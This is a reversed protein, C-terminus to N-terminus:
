SGSIKFDKLDITAKRDQLKASWEKNDFEFRMELIKNLFENEEVFACFGIIRFWSARYLRMDGAAIVGFVETTGISSWHTCSPLFITASSSLFM